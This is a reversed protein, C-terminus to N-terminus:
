AGSLEVVCNSIIERAKATSVADVAHRDFVYGEQGNQDGVVMSSGVTNTSILVLTVASREHAIHSAHIKRLPVLYSEFRRAFQVCEGVLTGREDSKALTSLGADYAVEYLVKDGAVDPKWDWTHNSVCGELVLSYLDSNHSHPPWDPTQRPRENPLWVHLRLSFERLDPVHLKWVYFGYPHITPDAGIQCEIFNQFGAEYFTRGAVKSLFNYVKNHM